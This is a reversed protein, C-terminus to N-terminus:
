LKIEEYKNGKSFNDKAWLPQLNDLNWCEKFEPDNVSKFEFLSIPKIHDIHWKGINEWTMGDQFLGNFHAILKELTFNVFSEWQGRNKSINQKKLNRRIAGSILM